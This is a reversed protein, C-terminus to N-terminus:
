VWKEIKLDPIRSFESVNNTVLILNESKAHSGIFLDLTGIIQGAKELFARLQGYTKAAKETFPLIELPAIFKLLALENREPYSSKSVGYELEALTIASIGIDDIQLLQIKEFVSLPKKKIIYICINTDLLYKM